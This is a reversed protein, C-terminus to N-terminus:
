RAFEVRPDRLEQTKTLARRQRLDVAEVFGQGVGRLM